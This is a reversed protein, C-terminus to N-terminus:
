VRSWIDELLVCYRSGDGPPVVNVGDYGDPNEQLTSKRADKEWITSKADGRDDPDLLCIDWEIRSLAVVCAKRVGLRTRFSRVPYWYIDRLLESEADVDHVWMRVCREGTVELVELHCVCTKGQGM